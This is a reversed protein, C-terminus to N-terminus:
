KVAALAAVVLRAMEVHAEATPHYNAGSDKVKAGNVWRKGSDACPGHGNSVVYADAIRIGTTKAAEVFASELQEGLLAIYNADEDTLGLDACRQAPAPVVQPYPVLVIVANPAKAKIANIVFALRSPLQRVVAAIAAQDIKSACHDEPKAGSCKGTSGTYSMDNGGITLTVLRTDATVANLQPPADGQASDLVHATTAGSCSVDVLKLSLASAVLHAYNHDSRGCTAQQVPIGPGAAFSSGLAVYKSGAPLAQALAGCSFLSFLALSGLHWGNCNVRLIRM